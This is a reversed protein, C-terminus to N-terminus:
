KLFKKLEEAIKESEVGKELYIDAKIWSTENNFHLGTESAVNTSIIVPVKPKKKKTKYALIFGSDDNEMMLDFVAADFDMNEIIAEAEKQSSATITDFGESELRFKIQFLYDFDDDAILVIKNLKSM